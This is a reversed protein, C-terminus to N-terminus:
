QCIDKKTVAEIFIEDLSLQAVEFLQLEVGHKILEALIQKPSIDKNLYLRFRENEPEWFDVGNLKKPLMSFTKILIERKTYQNRLDELHGSLVIRGKHILIIRDCLEEAHHMHHTSMMIANGKRREEIFLEKAIQTNLPDLASFPEDVIIIKPEHIFATILQAKQQLGKSMEKVKRHRFDNLDFYDFLIELREHIKEKPMNKLSALYSLCKELSIDQYLGREEPLYGILNKKGEDMKGNLVEITGHDPKFIDLIMRITTTKGAGNPGLLGLIEGDEVKFSIRDVARLTGFTKVIDKVEIAAM